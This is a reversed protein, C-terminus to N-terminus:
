YVVIEVAEAQIPSTEKVEDGLKVSVKDGEKLENLELDEEKETKIKTNETITIYGSEYMADYEKNLDEVLIQNNYIGMITGKLELKEEQMPNEKVNSDIVKIASIVIFAIGILILMTCFIVLIKRKNDM